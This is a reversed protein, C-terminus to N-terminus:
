CWYHAPVRELKLRNLAIQKLPHTSITPPSSLVPAALSFLFIFDSWDDSQDLSLLQFSFPWILLKQYENNENLYKYTGKSYETM